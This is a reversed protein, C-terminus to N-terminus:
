CPLSGQSHLYHAENKRLLHVSLAFVNKNIEMSCEYKIKTTAQQGM